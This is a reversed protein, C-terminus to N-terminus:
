VPVPGGLLGFFRAVWLALGLGGVAIIGIKATRGVRGRGVDRADGHVFLSALAQVAFIGVLLAMVPGLANHRLVGDIDGRTLALVARTSGCGPCPAGFVSAFACPIAKAYLLGGLAAFLVVAGATRWIRVRLAPRSPPAAARASTPPLPTM